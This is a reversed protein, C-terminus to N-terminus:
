DSSDLVQQCHRYKREHTSHCIDFMHELLASQNERRPPIGMISTLLRLMDPQQTLGLKRSFDIDRITRPLGLRDYSM